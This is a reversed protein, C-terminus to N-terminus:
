ATEEIALIDSSFSPIAAKYAEVASAPVYIPIHRSLFSNDSPLVPPITSNFVIKPPYLSCLSSFGLTTLTEPFILDSTLTGIGEFCYSGLEQLISNNEFVIEKIPCSSFYRIPIKVLWNPIEIKKLSVCNNFTYSQLEVNSNFDSAKLETCLSNNIYLRFAGFGSSDSRKIGIFDSISGSFYVNVTRNDISFASSGISIINKKLYVNTFKCRQFASSGISSLSSPFNISTLGCSYFASFGIEELGESFNVSTLSSCDSFSYSAILKVSSPINVRILGSKQFSYTGISTLSNPLNVSTLSKCYYFSYSGLSTVTDPLSVSTLTTNNYFAYDRIKTVGQLDEASIETVTGEMLNNYFTLQSLDSNLDNTLDTITKNLEAITAKQTEITSNLQEITVNKESISKELNTIKTQLEAIKAKDVDSNAQLDALSQKVSALETKLNDLKLENETVYANYTEELNNYSTTLNSVNEQLKDIKIVLGEQYTTLEDIKGSYTKETQELKINLDKNTNDREIIAFCGIGIVLFLIFLLSVKKFINM